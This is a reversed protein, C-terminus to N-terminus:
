CRNLALVVVTICGAFWGFLATQGTIFMLLRHECFLSGLISFAGTLLSNHLLTMLDVCVLYIMIRYCSLKMFEKNMMVFLIPIYLIIFISGPIIYLLGIGLSPKKELQWHELSFFDCRYYSDYTNKTPLFLVM